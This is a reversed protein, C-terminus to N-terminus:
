FPLDGDEVPVNFSQTPQPKPQQPQSTNSVTQTQERPSLNSVKDVYVETIVRQKNDKDTYTRTQISGTISLMNGKKVYQGIYNAQNGWAICNIFDTINQGQNDKYGRDVAISFSCVNSQGALRIEPDRTIRGVLNVSNM